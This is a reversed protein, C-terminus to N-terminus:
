DAAEGCDDRFFRNDNSLGDPAAVKSSILAFDGPATM